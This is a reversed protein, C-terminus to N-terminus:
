KCVSFEALAASVSFCPESSQFLVIEQTCYQHKESNLMSIPSSIHTQDGPPVRLDCAHTPHRSRTPGELARVALGGPMPFEFPVQPCCPGAERHCM